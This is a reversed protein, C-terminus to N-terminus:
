TVVEVIWGRAAWHQFWAGIEAAITGAETPVERQALECAAVLPVRRTLADLLAFAGASMRESILRLDQRFVALFQPEPEPIPVASGQAERLAHRLEVVPYSVKVLRLAPNTILQASEWAAEPIAALRAADLPPADAADFIEVYIRELRAMDICLAHHPLWHSREVLEPLELGLDRLTHSTPARELLYTEVLRQWDDQGLIGGLGPYDEVLSGTHRLWFQERYIELQEVPSLRSNGAIYRNALGTIGSDKSLSRQERLARTMFVQIEDLSTMPQTGPVKM